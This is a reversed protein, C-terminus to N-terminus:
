GRGVLCKAAHVGLYATFGITFVATLAGIIQLGILVVSM